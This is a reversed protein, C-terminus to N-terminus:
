PILWSKQWYGAKHPLVRRIGGRPDAIDGAYRPIVHFHAHAVTQGAASGVNIGLNYGDPSHHKEIHQRVPAVLSWVAAQEETTLQFLDPIHRRLVILMHGPSVPYADPFAVALENSAVVTSGAM